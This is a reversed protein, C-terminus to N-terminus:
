TSAYRFAGYHVGRGAGARLVDREEDVSAATM